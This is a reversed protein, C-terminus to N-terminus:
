ALPITLKVSPRSTSLSRVIAVPPLILVNSLKNKALLIKTQHIHPFQVCFPQSRKPQLGRRSQPSPSDNLSFSGHKPYAPRTGKSNYGPMQRVDSYYGPFRLWPLRITNSMLGQTSKAAKNTATQSAETLRQHSWAARLTCLYRGLHRALSSRADALNLNINETWARIYAFFPIGLDEHIKDIVIIYWPANTAIGLCKSQLVQLKRVYSFAAFRWIACVNGMM